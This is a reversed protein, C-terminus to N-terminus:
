GSSDAVQQKRREFLSVRLSGNPYNTQGKKRIM